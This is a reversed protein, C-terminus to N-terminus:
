VKKEYHKKVHNDRMKAFKFRKDCHDCPFDVKTTNHSEMHANRAEVTEFQEACSSCIIKDESKWTELIDHKTEEKLEQVKDVSPIISVDVGETDSIIKLFPFEQVMELAVSDPLDKATYVDFTILMNPVSKPRFSTIPM